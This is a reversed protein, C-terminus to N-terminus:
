LKNKLLRPKLTDCLKNIGAVWIYETVKGFYYGYDLREDVGICGHKNSILKFLFMGRETLESVRKM